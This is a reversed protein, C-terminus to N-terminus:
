TPIIAAPHRWGLHVGSADGPLYPADNLLPEPHEARVGASHEVHTCHLTRDEIMAGHASHKVHALVICEVRQLLRDTRAEEPLVPGPPEREYVGEDTVGHEVAQEADPKRM